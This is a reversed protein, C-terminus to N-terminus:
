KWSKCLYLPASSQDRSTKWHWVQPRPNVVSLMSVLWLAAPQRPLRSIFCFFVPMPPKLHSYQSLLKVVSLFLFMVLKVVMMIIVVIIVLKVMDVVVVLMVVIIAVVVLVMVVVM